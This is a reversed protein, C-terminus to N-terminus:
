QGPSNVVEGSEAGPQVPETAAELSPETTVPLGDDGLPLEPEDGTAGVIVGEAPEGTPLNASGVNNEGGDPMLLVEAIKIHSQYDLKTILNNTVLRSILTELDADEIKTTVPVDFPESFTIKIETLEELRDVIAVLSANDANLTLLDGDRSLEFDDSAMSLTALCLSALLLAVRSSSSIPNQACSLSM